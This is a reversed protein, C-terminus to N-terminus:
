KRKAPRRLTQPSESEADDAIPEPDLPPNHVLSRPLPATWPDVPVSLDQDAVREAKGTSILGAATVTDTIEYVEGVPVIRGDVFHSRIARVKM